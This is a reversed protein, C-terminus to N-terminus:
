SEYGEPPNRGDAVEITDSYYSPADSNSWADVISKLVPRGAANSDLFPKPIQQNDSDPNLYGAYPTAYYHNKQNSSSDWTRIVDGTKNGVWQYVNAGVDWRGLTPLDWNASVSAISSYHTYFSNDTTGVLNSPIADGLLVGLIQNPANPTIEAEDWTILVMTNKMFKADTLLPELFSRCWRGGTAVDTDHGDSTMNPTIFMWQPLKDAALDKHFESHKTDTRSLNKLQGLRAANDTVSHYHVAPNHKRVYDNRGNKQNKYSEAMFGTYPMDEQYHAWSISKSELLDVISAVNSPLEAHGDGPLGFYDGGVSAVYNPQSPHTVGFYNTLKIGKKALWAFNTDGASKAYNENEFYIIALRDFAAGKVNSTPVTAATASAVISLLATATQLLM